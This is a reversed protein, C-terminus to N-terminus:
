KCHRYSYPDLALVGDATSGPRAGSVLSMPQLQRPIQKWAVLADKQEDNHPKIEHFSMPLFRFVIPHFWSPISARLVSSLERRQIARRHDVFLSVM